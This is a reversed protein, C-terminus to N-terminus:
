VFCERVTEPMKQGEVKWWSVAVAASLRWDSDWERSRARSFRPDERQTSSKNIDSYFDLDARPPLLPRIISRGYFQFARAATSKIVGRRLGVSAYKISFRICAIPAVERSHNRTFQCALYAHCARCNRRRERYEHPILPPILASARALVRAFPRRPCVRFVRTGASISYVIHRYMDGVGEISGGTVQIWNFFGVDNSSVRWECPSSCEQASFIKSSM